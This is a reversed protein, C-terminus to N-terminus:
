MLLPSLLNMVFNRKGLRFNLRKHAVYKMLNGTVGKAAQATSFIEATRVGAKLISLSAGSDV